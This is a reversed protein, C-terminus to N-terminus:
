ADQADDVHCGDAADEYDEIHGEIQKSLDGIQATLKDMEAGVSEAAAVNGASLATVFDNLGELYTVTKDDLKESVELMADADDIADVCATATSEARSKATELDDITAEADAITEEASELDSSLSAARSEWDNASVAGLAGWVAAGVLLLALVLTVAHAKLFAAAKGPVNAPAPAPAPATAASQAPEVSDPAPLVATDGATPGEADAPAPEAATPNGNTPAPETTVSPDGTPATAPLEPAPNPDAASRASEDDSM